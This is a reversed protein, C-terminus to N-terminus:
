APCAARIRGPEADLRRVYLRYALNGAATVAPRPSRRARRAISATAFTRRYAWRFGRDLEAPSLRAPRFVVHQTDYHPWHTHLLRREARLREFARTGPYPTYLAYRPIDIGWADVAEVTRAFVEPGDADLGFLFCGQLSIGHAHLRRVLEGYEGERNFAKGMGALAGGDLSELGVLLYICGSRAMAELLEPDRGIRATALGGWRRRLPALAAFLELAYERDENLSVDNFAFLRGRLARVEAVVEGVPRTGWGYRAAPVSCFDCTGRCGRTAFVTDPVAYGRRRQLDRRPTPLGAPPGPEQEYRPRLRGAAADRLLAPWAREAFGVVVADAHRAAEGPCLTAHVGGLVVTAGHARFHAAWAYARHATGTLCSIGVLDFTADAPVPDISEDVLRLRAGLGAPVLAALTTLTLPAERFSMSLPGWRLRHIRADPMLLLIRM